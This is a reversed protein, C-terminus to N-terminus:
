DIEQPYDEEGYAGPADCEGDGDCGAEDCDSCMEPRTVDSSIAIEFCDRCACETYGSAM